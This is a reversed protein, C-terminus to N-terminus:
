IGLGTVLRFTVMAALFLSVALAMGMQIWRSWSRRRKGDDTVLSSMEIYPMVGRRYWGEVVVTSGEFKDASLGHALRVLPISQRDLLFMEGTDDRLMLDPSWFAGPDGRGVVEAQLRVARPKMESVSTDGLLEGLTADAFPTQYRYRIRAVWTILLALSLGEALPVSWGAQHGIEPLALLSIALTWPTAWLIVELPFKGWQVSAQPVPYKVVQALRESHQNLAQVRHSILPHTSGLEYVRAWPNVVDWMMARRAGDPSVGTLSLAASGNPVGLAGITGTVRRLALAVKREGADKSKAGGASERELRGMGHSIKLLASALVGPTGTAEAAFQDAMYERTRSFSLVLLNSAWYAGYAGWVAWHDDDFRRSLAYLQYLILPVLAALTMALFDWHAIHGAEHAIVANLEEETLTELLGSTVVIGADRQTRGFAFANPMACRLVGVRPMPLRHRACLEELFQRSRVPLADANWDIDLVLRIIWPSLLYQLTVIVSAFAVGWWPSFGQKFYLADAVLFLLGYLSLFISLSRALYSM